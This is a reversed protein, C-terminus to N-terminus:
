ARLLRSIVEANPVLYMSLRALRDALGSSSFRTVVVGHAGEGSSGWLIVVGDGCDIRKGGKGRSSKAAGVLTAGLDPLLLGGMNTKTARIRVALAEIGQHGVKFPNRINAM